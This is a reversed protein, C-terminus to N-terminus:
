LFLLTLKHFLLLWSLFLLCVEQSNAPIANFRYTRKSLVSKKKKGHHVETKLVTDSDMQKDECTDKPLAHCEETPPDREDGRHDWTRVAYTHKDRSPPMKAPTYSTYNVNAYQDQM